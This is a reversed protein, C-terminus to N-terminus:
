RGASRWFVPPSLALSVALVICFTLYAPVAQASVVGFALAACGMQLFGLLASAAGAQPGFPPLAVATGPPHILDMGVLFLTWVASFYYADM